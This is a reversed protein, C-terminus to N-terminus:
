QIVILVEELNSFNVSPKILAYCSLGSFERGIEVVRGILIGKPYANDLGSSIVTDGIKVDSEQPLYKMILNNGLGGSVLGEQRSRQIVASIGLNPDTLLSVKSFNHGTEVVRGALGLYTVVSMGRRVGNLSGKDITINTSWNDASRAIVRAAVLKLPSNKKFSLLQKLRTNELYYENMSNVKNKLFDVERRLSENQILNRQYFVVGAIHRKFNAFIILPLRLINNIPKKFIAISFIFIVLFIIVSLSLILKKNALKFM